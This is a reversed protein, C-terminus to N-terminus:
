EVNGAVGQDRLRARLLMAGSIDALVVQGEVGVVRALRATFDGSGGALDLARQGRGVGSLKIATRRWLRHIGFSMVDNLVDYRNAVSDFVTAVRRPKEEIPVKEFGFHTTGTKRESKM